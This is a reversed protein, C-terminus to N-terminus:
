RTAIVIILGVGLAAGLGQLVSTPSPIAEIVERVFATVASSTDVWLEEVGSTGAVTVVINNLARLARNIADVDGSEGLVIFRPTKSIVLEIQDIMTLLGNIRTRLEGVDFFCLLPFAACAGLKAAELAVVEDGLRNREDELIAAMTEIQEIGQEITAM